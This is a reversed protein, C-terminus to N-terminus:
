RLAKKNQDVRTADFLIFGMHFLFYEKPSNCLGFGSYVKVSM